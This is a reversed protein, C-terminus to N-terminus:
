LIHKVIHKFSKIYNINSPIIRFGLLTSNLVKENKLEVNLCM